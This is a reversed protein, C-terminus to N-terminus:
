RAVKGALQRTRAVLRRIEATESTEVAATVQAAIRRQKREWAAKRAAQSRVLANICAACAYRRKQRHWRAPGGSLPRGCMCCPLDAPLVAHRKKRRSM